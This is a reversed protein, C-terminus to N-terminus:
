IKTVGARIGELISTLEKWLRDQIEREKKGGFIDKDKQVHDDILIQGHSKPGADAAHVLTRAGVETPRALAKVSMRILLSDERERILRSKCFGPAVCNIIVKNQALPMSEAMSRVFFYEILKSVNYRDEMLSRDGNDMTAFIQGEPAQAEVFKAQRYLESSTIVINTQTGFKTATSRLTPCLLFCLYATSIVNTTITAEHGEVMTFDVAHIGANAFLVDLRPLNIVRRAFAGVSEYSSLDLQWVEITDKACRSSNRLETAAEEGKSTNRCALIVKSAGLRLVHRACELGLGVNAGTVIVTQHRFSKTPVPPPVFLQRYLFPFAWSM